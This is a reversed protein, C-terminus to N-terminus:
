EDDEESDGLIDGWNISKGSKIREAYERGLDTLTYQANYDDGGDVYDLFDKRAQRIESPTMVSLLKEPNGDGNLTTATIELRATEKPIEIIIHIIEGDYVEEEPTQVTEETM